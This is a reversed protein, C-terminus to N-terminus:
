CRRSSADNKSIQRKILRYAESPNDVEAVMKEFPCIDTNTKNRIEETSKEAFYDVGCARLVDVGRASMIKAFAKEAKFYCILLGSAKGIVRDAVISGRLADIGVEDIAEILPTIGDAKSSYLVKSASLILLSLKERDLRALLNGPHM